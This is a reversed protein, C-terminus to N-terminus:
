LLNRCSKGGTVKAGVEDFFFQHAHLAVPKTTPDFDLYLAASPELLTVKLNNKETIAAKSGICADNLAKNRMNIFHIYNHVHYYKGTLDQGGTSRPNMRETKDEPDYNIPVTALM